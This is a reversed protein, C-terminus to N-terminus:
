RLRTVARAGVAGGGEARIVYVGPPLQAVALIFTHRGPALRGLAYAAVRRGVADYLAVEIEASAALTLTGV